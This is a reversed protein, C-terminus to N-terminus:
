WGNLTQTPDVGIFHDGLFVEKGGVNPGQLPVPGPSPSTTTTLRLM